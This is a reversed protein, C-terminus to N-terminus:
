KKKAATWADYQAQAEAIIKDIGAEKFKAIAKPLEVDPDVSGCQLGPMVEHFVNICAAEETKVKENNFVFGLTDLPMASRNFNELTAWKDPDENPFLYNIFMNGNAWTVGHYGLSEGNNSDKPFDIVNESVKVYHVGEIGFNLLNNFYKDSNALEMFMMARAPDKSTRSIANMSGTTEMNSMVPKTIDVQVWKYTGKSQEEAHGPKMISEWAFASGNDIDSTAEQNTSADKRILGENYYKRITQFYQIACPQELEFYVKTDRNDAYFSIPLYFNGVKDMNIIEYTQDPWVCFPYPMSPENAKVTKLIPELDEFSKIASLDFKYKEVIDKRLEFGYDHAKEKNVPLAYLLGNVKAGNLYTEGLIAKTKPAYQTLIDNAPDDLPFFAGKRANGLYDNAWSSTYCMDFTEGSAILASMKQDYSGADIKKLKITANIRDKMYKDMEAEVLPDDKEPGSSYMYWSLEYPKLANGAPGDGKATATSNGATGCGALAMIVALVVTIFCYLERKAKYM